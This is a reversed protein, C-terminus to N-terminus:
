TQRNAYLPYVSDRQKLARRFADRDMQDFLDVLSVTERTEREPDARAPLESPEEYTSM